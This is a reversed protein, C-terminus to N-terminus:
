GRAFYEDYPSSGVHLVPARDTDAGQPLTIRFWVRPDLPDSAALIRDASSVALTVENLPLGSPNDLCHDAFAEILEVYSRIRPESDVVFRLVAAEFPLTRLYLWGLFREIHSWGDRRSQFREYEVISRTLGHEGTERLEADPQYFVPYAGNPEFRWPLTRDDANLVIRPEVNFVGGSSCRPSSLLAALIRQTEVDHDFDTAGSVGVRSPEIPGLFRTRNLRFEVALAPPVAPNTDVLHLLQRCLPRTARWHAPVVERVDAYKERLESIWGGEVLKNVWWRTSREPMGTLSACHPISLGYRSHPAELNLATLLAQLRTSQRDTLRPFPVSLTRSDEVADKLLRKGKSTLRYRPLPQSVREGPLGTRTDLLVAPQHAVFGAKVLRDLARRTGPHRQEWADLLPAYLRPVSLLLRLADAAWPKLSGYGFTENSTTLRATAM